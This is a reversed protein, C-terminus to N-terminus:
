NHDGLVLRVIVQLATAITKALVITPTFGSAGNGLGFPSAPEMDRRLGYADGLKHVLLRQYSNLPCPFSPQVLRLHTRSPLVADAGFGWALVCGWPAMM